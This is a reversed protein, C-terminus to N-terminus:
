PVGRWRSKSLQESTGTDDRRKVNGFSELRRRRVFGGMPEMKVEELIEENGRHQLLSM